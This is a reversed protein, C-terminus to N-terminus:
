AASRRWLVTRQVFLVAVALVGLPIALPLLLVILVLWGIDAFVERIHV